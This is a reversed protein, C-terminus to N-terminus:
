GTVNILHGLILQSPSWSSPATWSFQSTSCLSTVLFSFCFRVCLVNHELIHALGTSNFPTTRFNISFVNNSDSRDVHLYELGTKEHRFVFATMNFEPIFKSNTCVFGHMRDGSLFKSKRLTADDVKVGSLTSASRHIHSRIRGVPARTLLRTIM